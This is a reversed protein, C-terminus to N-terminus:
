NDRLREECERCIYNGQPFPKNNYKKIKYNDLDVVRNIFLGIGLKVSKGCENCIESNPKSQIQNKISQM